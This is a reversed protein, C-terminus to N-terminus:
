KLKESNSFWIGKAKKRENIILLAGVLSAVGILAAPLGFDSPKISEGTSLNFSFPLAYVNTTATIFALVIPIILLYKGM